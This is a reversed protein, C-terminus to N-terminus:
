YAEIIRSGIKYVFFNLVIYLKKDESASFRKTNPNILNIEKEAPIQFNQIIEGPLPRAYKQIIININYICLLCTKFISNALNPLFYVHM